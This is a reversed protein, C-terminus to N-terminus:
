RENMRVPVPTVVLRIGQLGSTSLGTISFCSIRSSHRHPFCLARGLQSSHSACPFPPFVGQSAQLPEEGERTEELHLALWVNGIWWYVLWPLVSPANAVGLVQAVAVHRLKGKSLAANKGRTNAGHHSWSSLSVDVLWGSTISFGHSGWEVDAPLLLPFLCSQGRLAGPRSRGGGGAVLFIGIVKLHQGTLLILRGELFFSTHLPPNKKKRGLALCLGSPLLACLAPEATRESCVQLCEAKNRGEQKM